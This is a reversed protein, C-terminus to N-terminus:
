HLDMLQLLHVVATCFTSSPPPNHTHYSETVESENQQLGLFAKFFQRNLFLKAICKKLAFFLLKM